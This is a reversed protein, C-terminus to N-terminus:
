IGITKIDFILHRDWDKWYKIALRRVYIWYADSELGYNQIGYIIDKKIRERYEEKISVEITQGRYSFQAVPKKKENDAINILGHGLTAGTSVQLGDNMCSVPPTTGAFSTIKIDDVGTRFYERVRLGMKTGIIAYIGLHGHLENTLVGARWERMGNNIIISDMHKAVDSAFLNNDAPFGNFVQCENIKEIDLIEQYDHFLTATDGSFTYINEAKEEFLGPQLMYVPVMEDWCYIRKMHASCLERVSEAVRLAYDSNFSGLRSPFNGPLYIDAASIIEINKFYKMVSDASARDFNYNTNNIGNYWLIRNIFLFLNPDQAYMKWINHMSGLCVMSVKTREREFVSKIEALLDKKNDAIIENGWNIKECVSRFPPENMLYSDGQVVPIGEHYFSNLLSRVKIAGKEPSVAGDSTSVAHINFRPSALMLCIARLDDSGCDTDIIVQLDAKGPYSFAAFCINFILVVTLFRRIM